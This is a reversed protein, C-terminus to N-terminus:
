RYKGRNIINLVRKKAESFRSKAENLTAGPSAILASAAANTSVPFPPSVVDSMMYTKQLAAVQPNPVNVKSFYAYGCSEVHTPLERKLVANIIAQAPNFCVVKRLGVYSTTLRPNVELAVVGNETLVFDVGVYGRLDPFSEVINEAAEFAESRFSNVFPVSGGSYSSCAEPTDLNVEQWNLSVPVAKSGTSFLCLSAPDGTILEQVLFIKSSSAQKIKAIAGAVQDENRVVSLGCCSVGDSPKFLLPFNLRGRIAQNIEAINDLVSFMLTKPTVLGKKELFDHFGAKNSVKEIASASCNLSASNTQEILEVLSRLAGGTEQAIVYAADTESSIKQLNAQIEKSSSVPVVCDAEIPPNLKAIRSDLTITVTHGAAKFDATLTRLMGFGESLVSPSLPESAFGGGSIHEYVLLKL